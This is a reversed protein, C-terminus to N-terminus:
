ELYYMETLYHQSFRSTDTASAWKIQAVATGSFDYYKILIPHYGATLVLSVPGDSTLSHPSWDRYLITDDITIEIGEDSSIWFNYTDDTEVYLYGDWEVYFNNQFWGSRVTGAGDPWDADVSTIPVYLYLLQALWNAFRFEDHIQEIPKKGTTVIVTNEGRDRSQGTNIQYYLGRIGQVYPPLVQVYDTKTEADSNWANSAILTVTYNGESSYTHIPNQVSSTGGDGFDWAWATPNPTSNDTFQVALPELGSTPSGSFDAVVPPRPTPTSTVTLTPGATITHPVAPTTFTGSGIDFLIYETGSGGDVATAYIVQIREPELAVPLIRDEGATWVQWTPSGTRDTFEATRDEGDVMITLYESSLSDGGKHTLILASGNWDAGILVAPVDGGPSQSIMVALIVVVIVAFIAMLILSGITESLGSDMDGTRGSKKM